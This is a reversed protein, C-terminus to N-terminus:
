LFARWLVRERTLLTFRETAGHHLSDLLPEVLAHPTTAQLTGLNGSSDDVSQAMEVPVAIFQAAVDHHRIVYM